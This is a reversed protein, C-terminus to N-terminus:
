FKLKILLYIIIGIDLLTVNTVFIQFINLYATPTKLIKFIRANQKEEILIKLEKSFWALYSLKHRRVKPIFHNIAYDIYSYFTDLNDNINSNFNFLNSWNISGINSVISIYDGANWNFVYNYYDLDSVCKYTYTVTLPPHYLDIPVIPCNNENVNIFLSNPLVYYFISTNEYCIHNYQFM